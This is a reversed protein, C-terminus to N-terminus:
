ARHSAIFDEIERAEKIIDKSLNESGNEVVLIDDEIRVGIGLEKFYLGPECSIIMGPELVGEYRPM